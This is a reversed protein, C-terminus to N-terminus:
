KAVFRSSERWEKLEKRYADLKLAIMLFQQKPLCKTQHHLYPYLDLIPEYYHGTLMHLRAILQDPATSIPLHTLEAMIKLLARWLNDLVIQQIKAQQFLGAMSYVFEDYSRGQALVLPRPRGFRAALKWILLVIAMFFLLCAGWYHSLVTGVRRSFKSNDAMFALNYFRVQRSPCFTRLLTVFVAANDPYKKLYRNTLGSIDNWYIISGLGYPQRCIFYRNDIGYFGQGPSTIVTVQDQSLHYTLGVLYTNATDSIFSQDATTALSTLSNSNVKLSPSSSTLEIVTGGAAIWDIIIKEQRAPLEKTTTLVLLQNNEAPLSSVTAVQYGSQRLLLNIAKLGDPGYSAADYAILNKQSLSVWSLFLLIGLLLGLVLLGTIVKHKVM